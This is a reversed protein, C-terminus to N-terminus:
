PCAPQSVPNSKPSLRWNAMEYIRDLKQEIVKGLDLPDLSQCLRKLKAMQAAEDTGCGAGAGAANAGLRLVAAKSGKASIARQKTAASHRPLRM